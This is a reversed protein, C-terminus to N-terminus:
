KLESTREVEAEMVALLNEVEQIHVHTPYKNVYERLVAQAEDLKNCCRYIQGRLVAADAVADSLPFRTELLDLQAIAEVFKEQSALCLAVNYRSLDTKGERNEPDLEVVKEFESAAKAYNNQNLLKEALAYQASVSNPQQRIAKRLSALSDPSDVFSRARERFQGASLFRDIRDVEEGQGDLVLVTPYTLIAFEKQLRIGEEETETNLKLWVYKDALNRIVGADAFTEADMQKCLACWDTYMDAVILKKEAQAREIAKGYDREWTIISPRALSGTVASGFVIASVVFATPVLFELSLRKARSM